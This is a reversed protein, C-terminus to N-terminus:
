GTQCETLESGVLALRTASQTGQPTSYLTAVSITHKAESYQPMQPAGPRAVSQPSSLIAKGQGLEPAIM